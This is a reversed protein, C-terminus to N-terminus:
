AYGRVNVGVVPGEGEFNVDDPGEYLPAVERYVDLSLHRNLTLEQECYFQRQEFISFDLFELDLPKQGTTFRTIPSTSGRFTYRM